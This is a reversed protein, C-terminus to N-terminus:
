ENAASGKIRAYYAEQEHTGAKTASIIRRNNGRRTYVVFLLVGNVEGYVGIRQEGYDHRTNTMGITRGDFVLKVAEFDIGYKALNAARKQEDWEFLM